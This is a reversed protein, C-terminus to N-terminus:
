VAKPCINADNKRIFIAFQQECAANAVTPPLKWLAAHLDTLAGFFGHKTLKMLFNTQRGIVDFNEACGPLPQFVPQRLFKNPSAARWKADALFLTPEYHFKNARVVADAEITALVGFKVAPTPYIEPSGNVVDDVELPTNVRARQM